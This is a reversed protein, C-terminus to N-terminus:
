VRNGSFIVGGPVVWALRPISKLCALDKEAKSRERSSLMACVFYKEERKFKEGHM